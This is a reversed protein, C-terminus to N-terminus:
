ERKLQLQSSRTGALTGTIGILRKTGLRAYDPLLESVIDTFRKAVVCTYDGERPENRFFM